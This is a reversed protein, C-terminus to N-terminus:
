IKQIKYDLEKWNKVKIYKSYTEKQNMMRFLIVNSKPFTDLVSERDDIMIDLKLKKTDKGKNQANFILEHYPIHNEELYNKTYEEIKSCIKRDRATIFYITHGEDYWKQIVKQANKKIKMERYINEGYYEIAKLFDSHSLLYEKSYRKLKHNKQYKKCYKKITISSKTLTDDIDIGIKM